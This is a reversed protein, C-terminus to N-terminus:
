GIPTYFPHLADPAPSPNTDRWVPAYTGAADYPTM